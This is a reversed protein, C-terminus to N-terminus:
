ESLGIARLMRRWFSAKIRVGTFTEYTWKTIRAINDYNPPDIVYATPKGNEGVKTGMKGIKFIAIRKHAPDAAWSKYHQAFSGMYKGLFLEVLPGTLKTESRGVLENDKLLDLAQDPDTVVTILPTRSREPYHTRIFNLFAPYLANPQKGDTDTAIGNPSVIFAIVIRANPNRFLRDLASPFEVAGADDEVLLREFHEGAVELFTMNLPPHRGIRPRIQYRLARVMDPGATASPFDGSIWLTRWQNIIKAQANRQAVPIKSDVIETGDFDDQSDVYRLLHFHLTSKGSGTKGFSLFFNGEADEAMDSTFELQEPDVSGQFLEQTTPSITSAGVSQQRSPSESIGSKDEM